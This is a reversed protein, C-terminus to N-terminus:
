PMVDKEPVWFGGGEPAKVTLAKPMVHAWGEINAILYVEAGTEVAGVIQAEQEHDVRIPVDRRARVVQPQPDNLGILAGKPLPTEYPDTLEGPRLPELGRPKVWADIIVDTVSRVHYYGRQTELNWLLLTVGDMMNMTFVLPGGPSSYLDLQSSVKVKMRYPKGVQPPPTTAVPGLALADCPVTTALVQDRTGAIVHEVRVGQASAGVFRLVQQDAIAVSEGIVPLPRSSYLPVDKPAVWGDIRFGATGQSTSIRVREVVDGLPIETMTAPTLVGSFTAIVKGGTAADFIQVGKAFPALGSVKCKLPEARAGMAWAMVLVLALSARRM